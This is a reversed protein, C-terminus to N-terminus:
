GIDADAARIVMLRAFATPTLGVRKATAAVREYHEASLRLNLQRTRPRATSPPDPLEPSPPRRDPVPDECLLDAILVLGELHAEEDAIRAVARRRTGDTLPRLVESWRARPIENLDPLEDDFLHRM